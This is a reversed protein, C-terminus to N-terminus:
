FQWSVGRLGNLQTKLAQWFCIGTSNAAAGKIKKTLQRLHQPWYALAHNVKFTGFWGALLM